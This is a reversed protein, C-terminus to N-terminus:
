SKSPRPDDLAIAELADRSEIDLKAFIVQMRSEVTRLSVGLAVAIARNSKGDAVMRALAREESTLDM